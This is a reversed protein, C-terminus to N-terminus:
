PVSFSGAWVHMFLCNGLEFKVAYNTFPHPDIQTLHLATFAM